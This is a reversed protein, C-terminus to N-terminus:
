PAAGLRRAQAQLATFREALAHLEGAQQLAPAVRTLEAQMRAALELADQQPGRLADPAPLALANAIRGAEAALAQQHVWPFAANVHGAAAERAFLSAESGVSALQRLQTALEDRDLGKRPAAPECAALAVALLVLFTARAAM